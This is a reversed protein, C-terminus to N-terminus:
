KASYWSDGINADANITVLGSSLYHNGADRMLQGLVPKYGGSLEKKIEMVIEDYPSNSIRAKWLHDNKVIYKFLEALARKTQHAGRTQVPSNLCLRFYEGRLSFFKRMPRRWELYVEYSEQDEIEYELEKEEAAIKRKAEEKGLKYMTRLERSM